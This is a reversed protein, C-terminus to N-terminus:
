SNWKQNLEHLEVFILHLIPYFFILAIGIDFHGRGVLTIGYLVILAVVFMKKVSLFNVVIDFYKM